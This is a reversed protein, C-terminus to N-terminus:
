RRQVSTSDHKLELHDSTDLPGARYTNLAEAKRQETPHTYRELMAMSSHGSIEMITRVDLGADMMRSLATHRLTHLVVGTPDIGAAKVAAKFGTLIRTYRTGSRGSVFVFMTDSRAVSALVETMRATMPLRRPKGNKTNIFRLYGGVTDAWRLGLIEGLRAGTILLLEIIPKVAQRRRTDYAVLLAQQEDPTLIRTRSGSGKIPKVAAAPSAILYKWEVAKSLMGKLLMLERNVTGPMCGAALRKAKLQEIGFATIDQLLQNGFAPLLVRQLMEGDRKQTSPKKNPLSHTKVYENAFARFTIEPLRRIGHRGELIRSREKAEIDRAKHKDATETTSRYRRGNVRFDYHWHHDCRPSNACHLPNVAGDKLAPPEDQSCRKRLSM